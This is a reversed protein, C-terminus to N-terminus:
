FDINDAFLANREIFDRRPEVQDGMLTSFVLTAAEEDQINVQVLRRTEPNMTTDWLQDPNMEGLGKYRQVTSGKRANNMISEFAGYLSGHEDEVGDSMIIEVIETNDLIEVLNAFREFDSGLCFERDLNIHNTIGHQQLEIKIRWSDTSHYDLEIRQSGGEAMEKLCIRLRDVWNKLTDIMGGKLVNFDRTRRLAELVLKPYRTELVQQV